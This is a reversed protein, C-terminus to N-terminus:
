TPLEVPGAQTVHIPQPFRVSTSAPEEWPLMITIIIEGNLRSVPGAFSDSAVASRPLTSGEHLASFDFVEGNITIADGDVYVTPKVYSAPIACIPSFKIIM